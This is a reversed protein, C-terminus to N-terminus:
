LESRRPLSRYGGRQSATKAYVSNAFQAATSLNGTSVYEGILAAAFAESAGATDVPEEDLASFASFFMGDHLLCGRTGLRVLIYRVDFRNCLTCCAKKSQEENSPHIGTFTYVDEEDLLLIETHSLMEFPFDAPVVGRKATADIFFPTGRKAALASFQAIAEPEAELSAVIADPMCTLASEMHSKELSLNAGPFLITRHYGNKEVMELALGTQLAPDVTIKASRVGEKKCVERLRDGYYDDGVRACLVADFGLRAAAIAGLVSRGCPAFTYFEESRLIEQPAPIRSTGVSFRIQAGGVFLIRKKEM